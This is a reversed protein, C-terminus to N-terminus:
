VRRLESLFQSEPGYVRDLAKNMSYPSPIEEDADFELYDSAEARSVGDAKLSEFAAVLGRFAERSCREEQPKSIGLKAELNEVRAILARFDRASITVTEAAAPAPAPADITTIMQSRPVWHQEGGVEIQVAKDTTRVIQGDFTTPLGIKKAIWPKIQIAMM